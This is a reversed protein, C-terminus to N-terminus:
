FKWDQSTGAFDQFFLLTYDDFKVVFLTQRQQNPSLFLVRGPFFIHTPKDTTIIESSSQV